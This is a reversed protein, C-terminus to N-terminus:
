IYRHSHPPPRARAHSYLHIGLGSFPVQLQWHQFNFKIRSSSCNLPRLWYPLDEDGGHWKKLINPIKIYIYAIHSFIIRGM